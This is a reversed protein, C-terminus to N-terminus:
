SELKMPPPPPFDKCFSNTFYLFSFQDKRHFKSYSSSVNGKLNYSTIKGAMILGHDESDPDSSNHSMIKNIPYVLPQIVTTGLIPAEQWM